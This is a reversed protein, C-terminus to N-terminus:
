DWMVNNQVQIINHQGDKGEHLWNINKVNRQGGNKDLVFIRMRQWSGHQQPTRILERGSNSPALTLM